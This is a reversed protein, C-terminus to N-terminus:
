KFVKAMNGTVQLEDDVIEQITNDKIDKTFNGLVYEAMTDALNWLKKEQELPPDFGWSRPCVEMPIM